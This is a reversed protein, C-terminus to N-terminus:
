NKGNTKRLVRLVGYENFVNTQKEVEEFGFPAFVKTYDRGIVGNGKTAEGEFTIIYKQAMDAMKEFVWENSEPILFLCSMTFIVDYPRPEADEISTGNGKDIGHVKDYGANRLYHLNRGDGFGVELITADKPIYKEFVEVLFKSRDDLESM